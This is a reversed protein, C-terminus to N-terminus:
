YIIPPQDNGSLFRILGGLSAQPWITDASMGALLLGSQCAMIPVDMAAAEELIQALDPLGHARRKEDQDSCLPLAILAAAEGQLFIEPSKGLASFSLALELAAILKATDLSAVIIKM